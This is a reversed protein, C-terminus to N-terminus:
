ESIKEYLIYDLEQAIGDFMETYFDDSENANMDDIIAIAELLEYYDESGVYEKTIEPTIETIHQQKQKHGSKSCSTTYTIIVGTLLAIWLVGVAKAIASSIKKTKMTKNKLNIITITIINASHKASM